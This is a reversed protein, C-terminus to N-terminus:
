WVQVLSQMDVVMHPVSQCANVLVMAGFSHAWATIDEIPLVCGLVNLVHHVVVIWCIESHRWNKKAVIQWPVIASHHEAVTLIVEDGPKLNTLGCSNAVLNIAETANRTFVIDTSQPANVFNAVKKRALEYETTAKVSM